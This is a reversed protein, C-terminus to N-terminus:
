LFYNFFFFVFHMVKQKALSSNLALELCKEAEPLDEELLLKQSIFLFMM